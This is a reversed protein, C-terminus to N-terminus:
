PMGRMRRRGTVDAGSSTTPMEAALISESSTDSIVIPLRMDVLLLLWEALQLHLKDLSDVGKIWRYQGGPPMGVVQFVVQAAQEADDGFTALALTLQGDDVQRQCHQNLREHTEPENADDAPLVHLLIDVRLAAGDTHDETIETVDLIAVGRADQAYRKADVYARDWASELPHGIFETILPATASDASM